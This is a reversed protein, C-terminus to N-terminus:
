LAPQIPQADFLVDAAEDGLADMRGGPLGCRITDTAVSNEEASAGENAKAIGLLQRVQNLWQRSEESLCGPRRPLGKAACVQM